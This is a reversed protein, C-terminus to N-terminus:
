KSAGSPQVTRRHRVRLSQIDGELAVLDNVPAALDILAKHRDILWLATLYVGMDVKPDGKEMRMLTPVSVNMRIAWSRLSENRRKRALALNEGLEKLSRM